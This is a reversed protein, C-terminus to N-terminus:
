LLHERIHRAIARMFLPPVSNGIRDAAEWKGVFSFADPISALRAFERISYCRTYIPHCGSNRLYPKIGVGPKKITGTPKNWSHRKMTGFSGYQEGQKTLLAKHYTKTDKEKEDVWIHHISEDQLEKMDEIADRVTYARSQVKPHSPERGLDERVGIFIMRERSQPVHFYMANM